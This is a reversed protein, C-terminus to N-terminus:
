NPPINLKRECLKQIHTQNTKEAKRWVKRIDAEREHQVALLYASKLQGSSIYCNIRIAVDSVQKMLREFLERTSADKNVVFGHSCFVEVAVGLIRDCMRDVSTDGLSNGRICDILQEVGHLQRNVALHKVVSTYVSESELKFDQIIRFALGYGETINSGCILVLITLQIKDKTSGFLTPLSTSQMFMQLFVFCM